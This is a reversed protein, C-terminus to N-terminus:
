IGMTQQSSCIFIKKELSFRLLYDFATGILGYNKTVPEVKINAGSEFKPIPFLEELLTRFDKFQKNSYNLISTVSMKSKKLNDIM